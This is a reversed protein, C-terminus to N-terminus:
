GKPLTLVQTGTGRSLVVRDIHIAAVTAGDVTDGLTVRAIQGDRTRVLAGPARDSGFIGILAFRDLRVEQTAIRAVRRSTDEQTSM